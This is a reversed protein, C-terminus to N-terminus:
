LRFVGAENMEQVDARRCYPCRYHGEAVLIEHERSGVMQFGQSPVHGLPSAERRRGERAKLYMQRENM